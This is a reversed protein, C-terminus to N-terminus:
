MSELNVIKLASADLPALPGAMYSISAASADLPAGNLQECEGPVTHTICFGREAPVEFCPEDRGPDARTLLSFSKFGRLAYGKPANQM